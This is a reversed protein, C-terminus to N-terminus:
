LHDLFDMTQNLEARRRVGVLMVALLLNRTFALFWGLVFGSFGAWAAGIFAGRWSVSYGAFYQALLGLPFGPQPDRLLHVATLLFIVLAAVLGSAVGFAVKDLPLFAATLIVDQRAPPASM